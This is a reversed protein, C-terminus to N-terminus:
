AHGVGGSAKLKNNIEILTNNETRLSHIETQLVEVIAQTAILKKKLIEGHQLATDSESGRVLKVIDDVLSMGSSVISAVDGASIKTM